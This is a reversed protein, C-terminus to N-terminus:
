AEGGRRQPEAFGLRSRRTEDVDFQLRADQESQRQVVCGFCNCAGVHIGEATFWGAGDFEACDFYNHGCRACTGDWAPRTKAYHEARTM